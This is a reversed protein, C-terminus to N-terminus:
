GHLLEMIRAFVTRATIGVMCEHTECGSRKWCPSCEVPLATCNYRYAGAWYSFPAYGSQIILAKDNAFRSVYHSAGTELGVYLQAQQVRNLLDNDRCGEVTADLYSISAGDLLAKLEGFYPWDRYPTWNGTRTVMVLDHHDPFEKPQFTVPVHDLDAKITDAIGFQRAFEALLDTYVTFVANTEKGPRNRRVCNFTRVERGSAAVPSYKPCDVLHAIRENDLVADFGNARLAVVVYATFLNDGFATGHYTIRYLPRTM